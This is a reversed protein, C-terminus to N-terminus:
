DDEKSDDMEMDDNKELADMQELLMKYLKKKLPQVDEGCDTGVQIAEQILARKEERQSRQFLFGERQEKLLGARANMFTAKLAMKKMETDTSTGSSASLSSISKNSSNTKEAERMVSRSKEKNKEATSSISPLDVSTNGDDHNPMPNLTPLPDYGLHYALPGFLVFCLWSGHNTQDPLFPKGAPIPPNYNDDYFIKNDESLKRSNLWRQRKPDNNTSASSSNDNTSSKSHKAAWARQSERQRENENIDNPHEPRELGLIDLIDDDSVSVESPNEDRWKEIENDIDILKKYYADDKEISSLPASSNPLPSTTAGDVTTNTAEGQPEPSRLLDNKVNYLYRHFREALEYGNCGSPIGGDVLALKAFIAGLKTINAKNARGRALLTSGTLAEGKNTQKTLKLAQSLPFPKDGPKPQQPFTLNWADVRELEISVAKRSDTLDRANAPQMMEISKLYEDLLKDELGKNSITKNEYVKELAGAILYLELQKETDIRSWRSMDLGPLHQLDPRFAVGDNFSMRQQQHIPVGEASVLQAFIFSFCENGM